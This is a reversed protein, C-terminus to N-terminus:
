RKSGDIRFFVNKEYRFPEDDRNGKSSRYTSPLSYDSMDVDGGIVKDYEAFKIIANHDINEDGYYKASLSAMPLLHHYAALCADRDPRFPYTKDDNIYWALLCRLTYNSCAFRTHEATNISLLRHSTDYIIYKMKDPTTTFYMVPFINTLQDYAAIITMDFEKILAEPDHSVVEIIDEAINTNTHLHYATMGAYVYHQPLVNKVTEGSPHGSSLPHGSSPLPYLSNIINFREVDKSVRAFAVERPPNDYVFSLSSHMDLRQYDPHVVRFGEYKLTRLKSIIPCYSVDAVFHNSGCDVRFTGVHLANIVRADEYGDKYLIDALDRADRLPDASYFDLDPLALKEDDYIRGGQLRAAYDLATGGYCVLERDAIFKKTLEIAKKTQTTYPDLYIAPETVSTTFPM